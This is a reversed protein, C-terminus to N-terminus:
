VEVAAIYGYKVTGGGKVNNWICYCVNITIILVGLILIGFILHDDGQFVIYFGDNDGEHDNEYEGTIPNYASKDGGFGFGGEGYGGTGDSQTQANDSCEQAEGAPSCPQGLVGPCIKKCKCFCCGLTVGSCTTDKGDGCKAAGTRSACSNPEPKDDEGDENNFSDAMGPRLKFQGKNM